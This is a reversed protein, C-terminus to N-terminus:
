EAERRRLWFLCVPIGALLILFGVASNAPHNFVTAIVILACAAVFLGTTFPHGPVRFGPEDGSGRRRFVFLAAGTLGFWIFDVSVVYNLIQGYTGSLAIVTAAVGQLVIALIPVRTRPHVSAVSKFFLKDEAM